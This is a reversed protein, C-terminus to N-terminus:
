TWRELAIQLVVLGTGRERPDLSGAADLAALVPLAPQDAAALQRVTDLDFETTHIAVTGTPDPVLGFRRVAPELRDTSCYGRVQQPETSPDFGSLLAGSWGAAPVLGLVSSDTVVLENGLRAVASPHAHYIQVQSRDRTRAVLELPGTQALLKRLRSTQPAGLWSVPLGSLLAIAGWATLEAWARTRHKEGTRARYRDVSAADILSRASRQLPGGELLQRVRRTTVGLLRAAEETTYFDGSVTM